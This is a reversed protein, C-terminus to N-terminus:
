GGEEDSITLSMIPKETRTANGSVVPLIRISPVVVISQGCNEPWVNRRKGCCASGPVEEGAGRPESNRLAQVIRDGDTPNRTPASEPHRHGVPRRRSRRGGPRQGPALGAQGILHPHRRRLVRFVSDHQSIVTFGWAATECTGATRRRAGDDHPAVQMTEPVDSGAGAHWGYQCRLSGPAGPGSFCETRRPFSRAM